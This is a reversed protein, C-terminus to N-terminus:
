LNPKRTAIIIGRKSDSEIDHTCVADYLWELDVWHPQYKFRATDLLLVKNAEQNFGGIPVFHGDGTQKLVLRSTNCIVHLGEIQSTAIMATKFLNFDFSHVFTEATNHCM